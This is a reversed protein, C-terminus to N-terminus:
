APLHFWSIRTWRLYRDSLLELSKRAMSFQEALSVLVAEHPGTGPGAALRYFRRGHEEYTELTRPIARTRRRAAPEVRPRRLFDPFIGTTFLALDGARRYVAPAEEDGVLGALEVLDELSLSSFRRRRYRAGRRVWLTVTETRVFSVLLDVLYDGIAPAAIFRRLGPADFVVVTEAPTRELTYAREQLDRGVRRLLVAFVFRPSVRLLVQEDALLRRALRDDDLVVDLLESRARLREVADPRTGAEGWVTEAAFRLDHDSFRRDVATM